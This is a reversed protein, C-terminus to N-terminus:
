RWRSGRAGIQGDRFREFQLPEPGDRGMRKLSLSLRGGGCKDGPLDRGGLAADIGAPHSSGGLCPPPAHHAGGGREFEVVLVNSRLCNGVHERIRRPEVALRQGIRDLADSVPAVARDHAARPNAAERVAACHIAEDM